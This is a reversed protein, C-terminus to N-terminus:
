YRGVGIIFNVLLYQLLRKKKEEIRGKSKKYYDKSKEFSWPFFFISIENRAGSIKPPM